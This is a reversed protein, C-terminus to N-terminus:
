SEKAQIPYNHHELKQQGKKQNQPIQFTYQKNLPHTNDFEESPLTKTKQMHIM